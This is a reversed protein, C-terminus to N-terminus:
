ITPRLLALYAEAVDAAPGTSTIRGRELLLGRECFTGILRPDHSVLVASRGEARLDLFRQECKAKFAADGVAFVEDLVLVDRVAHFAVAYSLRASMGSSYHMLKLGAFRELEAFALIADLSKRIEALPVGLMSGILLVNDVANLEPNWGVGLELIPTLSARVSVQGRDPRYIGCLIRLLTSKGSGNRGMIGLAEGERLEFSVDQLVDLREFTPRNWLGLLHERITNRRVSPVRFSKSIGDVRVLAM